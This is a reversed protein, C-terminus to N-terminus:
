VQLVYSKNNTETLGIRATVAVDTSLPVSTVKVQEAGAVDPM